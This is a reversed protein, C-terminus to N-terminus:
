GFIKLLATECVYYLLDATCLIAVKNFFFINLLQLEDSKHCCVVKTNLQVKLM